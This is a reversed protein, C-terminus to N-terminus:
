CPAKLGILEHQLRAIQGIWPLTLGGLKLVREALPDTMALFQDVQEDLFLHYGRFHPGSMHWHFKKTKVYLAFTDVLPSKVGSCRRAHTTAPVIQRPSKQYCLSDRHEISNTWTECFLM